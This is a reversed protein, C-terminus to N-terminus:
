SGSGNASAVYVVSPNAPSVALAIIQVLSLSLVSTWTAGGNTSKFLGGTGAGFLVQPDSSDVDVLGASAPLNVPTWSLGNDNSGLLGTQTRVLVAGGAPTFLRHAPGGVLVQEWDHSVSWAGGATTQWRHWLPHPGVAARAEAFVELRGDTNTGVGVAN